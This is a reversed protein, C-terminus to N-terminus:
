SCTMSAEHLLTVVAEIDQVLIISATEHPTHVADGTDQVQLSVGSRCRPVHWKPAKVLWSSRRRGLSTRTLSDRILDERVTLGRGGERKRM